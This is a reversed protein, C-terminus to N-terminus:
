DAKKFIYPLEDEDVINELTRKDLTQDNSFAATLADKYKTWIKDASLGGARQYYMSEYYILQCLERKKIGDPNIKLKRAWKKLDNMPIGGCGPTKSWNTPNM